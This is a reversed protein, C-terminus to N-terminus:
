CLPNVSAPIGDAVLKSIANPSALAKGSGTKKSERRQEDFEKENATEYAELIGSNSEYRAQKWRSQRRQFKAWSKRM